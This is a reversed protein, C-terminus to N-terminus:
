VCSQSLSSLSMAAVHLVLASISSQLKTNFALVEFPSLDHSRQPFSSFAFLFLSGFFFSVLVEFPVKGMIRSEGPVTKICLALFTDGM